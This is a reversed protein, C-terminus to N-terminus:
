LHLNCSIIHLEQKKLLYWERAEQETEFNKTYRKGEAHIRSQYKGYKTIFIGKGPEMNYHNESCTVLRLNNISNNLGNGDIHDIQKEDHIDWEPHFASFIIRHLKYGDIDYYEKFNGKKRSPSKHPKLILPKWYKDRYFQDVRGDEYCKFKRTGVTVEM